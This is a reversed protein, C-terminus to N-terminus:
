EINQQEYNFLPLDLIEMFSEVVYDGDIDPNRFAILEMGVGKSHERDIISDGIYVAEEPAMQYHALIVELAEPHPKPNEVDFTTMVKGYYDNLAFIDLIQGMTNTRSTSIAREIARSKLEELFPILDPEMQMYKFFPQYNLDARYEEARPIDDPYNRLLYSVSKMVNHIHVYDLEEATMAPHGLTALIHNYYHKNANKSDFMVGDCDFIVLKPNQAM